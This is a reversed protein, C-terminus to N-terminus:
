PRASRRALGAHAAVWTILGACAGVAGFKLAASPGGILYGVAAGLVAGLWLADIGTNRRLRGLGIWIPAAVAGVATSYVLAAQWAAADVADSVSEAFPASNAFHYLFSIARNADHYIGAPGAVTGIALVTGCAVGAVLGFAGRWFKRRLSPRPTEGLKEEM